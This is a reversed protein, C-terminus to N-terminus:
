KSLGAEDIVTIPVLIRFTRKRMGIVRPERGLIALRRQFLYEKDDFTM